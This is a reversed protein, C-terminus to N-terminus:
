GGDICRAPPAHPGSFYDYWTSTIGSDADFTVHGRIIAVGRGDCGCIPLGFYLCADNSCDPVICTGAAGCEADATWGCAHGTPCERDDLCRIAGADHAADSPPLENTATLGGCASLIVLFAAATARDM